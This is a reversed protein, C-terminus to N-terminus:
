KKYYVSETAIKTNEQFEEIPCICANHRIKGKWESPLKPPKTFHTVFCGPFFQQLFTRLWGCSNRDLM